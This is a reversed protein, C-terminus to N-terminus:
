RTLQEKGLAFQANLGDVAVPDVATYSHSVVTCTM